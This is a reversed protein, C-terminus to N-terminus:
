QAEEELCVHRCPLWMSKNFICECIVNMGESTKIIWKETEEVFGEALKIQKHVFEAAYHTASLLVIMVLLIKQCM